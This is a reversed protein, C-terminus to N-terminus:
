VFNCCILDVVFGVLSVLLAVASLAVRCSLYAVPNTMSGVDSGGNGFWQWTRWQWLWLWQWLCQWQWRWQWGSISRQWSMHGLLKCASDAVVDDFRQNRLM